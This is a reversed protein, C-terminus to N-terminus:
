AKPPSTAAGVGVATVPAAPVPLVAAPPVVTVLAAAPTLTAATVVAPLTTPQRTTQMGMPAKTGDRLRPPDLSLHAALFARM